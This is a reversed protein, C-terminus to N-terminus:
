AQKCKRTKVLKAWHPRIRQWDRTLYPMWNNNCKYKDNKSQFHDNWRMGVWILSSGFRKGLAGLQDAIQNFRLIIHQNEAKWELYKIYTTDTETDFLDTQTTM